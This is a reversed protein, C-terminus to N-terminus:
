WRLTLHYSGEILYEWGEVLAERAVWWDEAIPVTERMKLSSRFRGGGIVGGRLDPHDWPRSKTGSSPRLIHGHGTRAFSIFVLFFMTTGAM